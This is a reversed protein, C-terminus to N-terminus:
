YSLYLEKRRLYEDTAVDSRWDFFWVRSSLFALAERPPVAAKKPDKFEPALKLAIKRKTVPDVWPCSMLDLAFCFLETDERVRQPALVRDCAQGLLRRQLEAYEPRHAAFFIMATATFYDPTSDRAEAGAYGIGSVLSAPIKWYGDIERVCLLLNALELQGGRSGSVTRRLVDIMERIVVDGIDAAVHGSVRHATQYADRIINGLLIATRFRRDVGFVFFAIEVAARLWQRCEEESVLGLGVRRAQANVYIQIYKLIFASVSAYEVRRDTLVQRIEKLIRSSNPGSNQWRCHESSGPEAPRPLSLATALLAKLHLKASSIDSLFPRRWELVKKENLFLKYNRLGAEISTQVVNATAEENHFIFYDDVYRRITYDRGDRLGLQELPAQLRADIEQLIIEAFIRSAEAGILIGHTEGHNARRMLSDFIGDFTWRCFRDRKATSKGKVAWSISHTYINDFCKSIDLLRCKTFQRDLSLLERSEFFRQLLGYREYAFFSSSHLPIAVDSASGFRDALDEAGDADQGAVQLEDNRNWASHSERVVFTEAVRAPRRLSWPSKNCLSVIMWQYQEYLDAFGMFLLPHILGLTRQRGEGNKITYTYPIFDGDDKSFIFERAKVAFADTSKFLEYVHSLSFRLPVEYPILDTLVVREKDGKHIPFDRRM